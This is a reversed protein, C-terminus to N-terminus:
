AAAGGGIVLVLVTSVTLITMCCLIIALLMSIVKGAARLLSSLQKLDFIDGVCACIHVSALWLLCQLIVPLFICGAALIGFAGVGSKLLRVYGQVTNFADSLAGGVVPIFSSIAFKVAKTGTTDAAAGVVTQLTLLSVFITMVIGLVWKVVKSFTECIGNLNLRPSISATISLGLFISLMPVLFGTAIQSIVEGAGVMMLHYSAASVTQGGAIMIGAIVPVYCLMFGSAGKIVGAASEVCSVIPLILITCVCLTSVVGMVGSMPRDGLSLKMGELLACLLMVALVEVAAKLPGSSQTQAMSAIQSFIASPTLSQLSEWDAGNIGMHEMMVRTDNPLENTLEDAGSLEVQQQYYDRSDESLPPTDAQANVPLAFLLFFLLLFLWTKVKM